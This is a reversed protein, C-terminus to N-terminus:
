KWQIYGSLITKATALASGIAAAAIIWKALHSWLWHARDDQQLLRRLKRREIPTLDDAPFEDLSNGM